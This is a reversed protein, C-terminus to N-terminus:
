LIIQYRADSSRGLSREQSKNEGPCAAVTQRHNIEM